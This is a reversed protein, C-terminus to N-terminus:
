GSRRSGRAAEKVLALGDYATQQWKAASMEAAIRREVEANYQREWANMMDRHHSGLVIWGRFLGWVIGWALVIAIGYQQILQLIGTFDSM